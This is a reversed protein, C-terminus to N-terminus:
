SIVSAVLSLLYALMSLGVVTLVIAALLWLVTAAFSGRQEVASM